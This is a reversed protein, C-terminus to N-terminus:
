KYNEYHLLFPKLLSTICQKGLMNYVGDNSIELAIRPILVMLFKRNQGNENMLNSLSESKM